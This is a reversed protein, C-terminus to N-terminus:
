QIIWAVCIEKKAYPVNPKYRFPLNHHDDLIVGQQIPDLILCRERIVNFNVECEKFLTKFIRIFNISKPNKFMTVTKTGIRMLINYIDKAVSSMDLQTDSANSSDSSVRQVAKSEGLTSNAKHAFLPDDVHIVSNHISEGATRLVPLPDNVTIIAEHISEGATRLVPLPDNM